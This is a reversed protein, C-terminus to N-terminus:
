RGGRPQLWSPSEAGVGLGPCVADDLPVGSEPGTPRVTTGALSLVSSDPADAQFPSM